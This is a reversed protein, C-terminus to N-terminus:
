GVPNNPDVVRDPRSLADRPNPEDVDLKWEKATEDWSFTDKSSGSVQYDSLESTHSYPGVPAKWETGDWVWSNYPSPPRPVAFMSEHSSQQMEEGGTIVIKYAEDVDWVFDFEELYPAKNSKHRLAESLPWNYNLLCEKEGSARYIKIGFNLKEFDFETEGGRVFAFSVHLDRSASVEKTVTWTNTGVDKTAIIKNM